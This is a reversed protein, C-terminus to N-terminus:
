NSFLSSITIFADGAGMTDIARSTLPSPNLMKIEKQFSKIWRKWM